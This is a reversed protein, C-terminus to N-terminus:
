RVNKSERLPMVKGGKKDKPNNGLVTRSFHLAKLIMHNETAVSHCLCASTAEQTNSQAAMCARGHILLPGVGYYALTAM